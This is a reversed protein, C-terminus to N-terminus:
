ATPRTTNSCPDRDATDFHAAHRVCLSLTGYPVYVFNRKDQM